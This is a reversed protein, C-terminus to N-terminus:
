EAPGVALRASAMPLVGLCHFDNTDGFGYVEIDGSESVAIAIMAVTRDDEDTEAEIADARRRLMDPIHNANTEYLTIVEAVM